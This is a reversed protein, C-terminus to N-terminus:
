LGDRRGFLQRTHGREGRAPTETPGVDVATLHGEIQVRVQGPMVGDRHGQGPGTVAPAGLGDERVLEPGLAELKGLREPGPEGPDAEVAEVTPADRVPEVE